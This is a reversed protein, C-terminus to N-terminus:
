SKLERHRKSCLVPEGKFIRQERGDFERNGAGPFSRCTETRFLCIRCLGSGFRCFERTCPIQGPRAASAARRTVRGAFGPVIGGGRCKVCSRGHGVEGVPHLQRRGVDFGVPLAVGPDIVDRRERGGLRPRMDQDARQGMAVLDAAHDREVLQKAGADLRPAAPQGEGEVIDRRIALEIRAVRHRRAVDVLVEVAEPLGVREVAWAVREFKLAGARQPRYHVAGVEQEVQMRHLVRGRRQHQRAQKGRERSNARCTPM